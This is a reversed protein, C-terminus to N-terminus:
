LDVIVRIRAPPGPEVALQHYTAAKVASRPRHRAPDLPEGYATAFLVGPAQQEVVFRNFVLGRADVLYILENLWRVLLDGDDSGRVDIRHSEREEVATPDIMLEFLGLAAEEFATDLTPGWAEIGTDATHEIVRHGREDM